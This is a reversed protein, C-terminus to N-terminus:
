PGPVLNLCSTKGKRVPIRRTMTTSAVTSVESGPSTGDPLRSLGELLSRSAQQLIEIAKERQKLVEFAQVVDSTAATNGPEMSSVQSLEYTARHADGLRASVLALRARAAASRPNTSVEQESMSQAARYAEAAERARSLHRYADGLNRQLAATPPGQRASEQFNSLAESYREKEYYLAGINLLLRASPQQALAKLLSQEAEQYRGEYKLALGLNMHGSVLGPALSTIKRYMEEAQQYQGRSLYFNGFNLYSQYGGPNADIAKRYTAAVDVDRGALAYTEALFRWVDSNGPDLTSARQFALVAPEYRGKFQDVQGSALLVQVSDPNIGAAKGAAEAARELCQPGDGNRYKQIQVAALAAYPLASRSDLAIAKEMLPVADNAKRIDQRLVNLGQIYFPYAADAVPEQAPRLKLNFGVTVTGILAKEAYTSQLTRVTQGSELDILRADAAIEGQGGSLNTQLAHTAGLVTRAREPTDVQNQQAAIPTIVSFHRRAGNLRDAIDLAIASAEAGSNRDVHFPLVALRVPQGPPPEQWQWYGLGAPVVVAAAAAWKLFTRRPELADGVLRATGYRREPKPELCKGIVQRWPRPLAEVQRQWEADVIRVAMTVTTAEPGVVAQPSPKRLGVPETGGRKPSHGTLMAHFLVGLAYVDSAITANEGLLLEPSMYDLTGGQRSQISSSDPESFRALGFDTIVARTRGDAANALIL